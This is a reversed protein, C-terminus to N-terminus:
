PRSTPRAATAWAIPDSPDPVYSCTSGTAISSHLVRGITGDVTAIEDIARKLAKRVATRAREANNAFHRPGHLGTAAELQEILMDLEAQIMEARGIDAQSQAESLDEALERARARYAARASDDLLEQHHAEISVVGAGALQLASIAQGPHSLLQALYTMGVLDPVYARHEGLAILWGRGERRFVGAPPEGGPGPGAGEQRTTELDRWAAVRPHMGMQEAETIARELVVAAREGDGPSGRQRLARALEARSITVLPRNGLEQDRRVARELHAVARDADDFTLAATGLSREATGLCVVALSPMMPRGAFPVLLKYAERAIGADDLAAAAEVIASMGALWTSSRPLADLGYATLKDLAVRARDLHGARATIVIATARFAFEAQVLTTSAAIEDAMDLLEADGGKIWNIALTHAGLYGLADGEGVEIGVEYCRRAEAEAEDLRGARVLEMVHIVDVIYLINRCALADARERLERLARGARQDGLLFLDVTRWLLGMLALVGQGAQSAVQILEDALGTRREAHEPALLAHHCLSLVEALAAADGVRRAADLAAWVPQTAAGDYVAEAALRAELRARLAQEEAPLRDLASRQLGLVRARELPQRAEDLWHGGLGLAAEAFTVADQEREATTAASDFRTRAEGLRGCLLAAQAWEVLLRGPPPGLGQHEHLDVAASLLSDARDYALSAILSRAAAQCASVALRADDVSRPAASLAHHARRALRDPSSASGDPSLVLAATAHADLRDSSSLGAELAARIVDHGFSFRGTVVDTVLGAAEAERLADLVALPQMGAVAAAETISPTPGLVASSRLLHQMSPPLADVTRRIALQVGDRIAHAPDAAGLAAIRRLHSASGGSVRVATRLLAPDAIEVGHLALFEASEAVDFPRLTISTAEAEIDDILRAEFRGSAPQGSPRSLVILLPLRPRARAVFRLLLLTGPDAAHVDDIILCTPSRASVEALRSTVAAFRAFRDSEVADPGASGALLGAAEEGCLDRLMPQWPWLPPAGGDLWCRASVVILGTHRAGLAV